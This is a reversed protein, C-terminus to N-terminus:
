VPPPFCSLLSSKTLNTLLIEYFIEPTLYKEAQLCYARFYEIGGDVNGYSAEITRGTERAILKAIEDCRNEAIKVFSEVAAIRKQLPMKAWTKQAQKAKAVIKDIEAPTTSEVAGIEEGTSPNTSILKM